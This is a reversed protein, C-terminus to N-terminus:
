SFSCSTLNAGSWLAYAGQVREILGRTELRRMARSLSAQAADYRRAGIETRSFHQGIYGRAPHYSRTLPFGFYSVLIEAAYVDTPRDDSVSRNRAATELIVQQLPSLAETM